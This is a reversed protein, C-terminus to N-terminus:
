RSVLRDGAYRPVSEKLALAVPSNPTPILVRGNRDFRALLPRPRAGPVYSFRLMTGGPRPLRFMDYVAISDISSWAVGEDRGDVFEVEIGAATARVDRIGPTRGRLLLLGLVVLVGGVVGLVVRGGGRAEFGTATCFLCWGGLLLAVAGAVRVKPNRARKGTSM